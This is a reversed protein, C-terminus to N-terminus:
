CTGDKFSIHYIYVMQQSWDKVWPMMSCYSLFYPNVETRVPACYRKTALHLQGTGTTRRIPWSM